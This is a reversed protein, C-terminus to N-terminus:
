ITVNIFWVSKKKFYLNLAAMMFNGYGILSGLGMLM